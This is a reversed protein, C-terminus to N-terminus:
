SPARWAQRLLDGICGAYAQSLNRHANRSRECAAHQAMLHSVGRRHYLFNLDMHQSGSLLRSRM